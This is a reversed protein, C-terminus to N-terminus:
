GWTVKPLKVSREEVGATTETRIVAEDGRVEVEPAQEPVPPEEDIVAVVREDGRM